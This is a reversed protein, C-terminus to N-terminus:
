DSVEVSPRSEEVPVGEQQGQCSGLLNVHFGFGMAICYAGLVLYMVGFIAHSRPSRAYYGGKRYNPKGEEPKRTALRLRLVGFAIVWAAILLPIWAPLLM